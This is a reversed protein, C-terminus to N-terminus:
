PQRGDRHTKLIGLLVQVTKSTAGSQRAFIQAGRQGLADAAVRDKLLHGLAHALEKKNAVIEIGNAAQMDAVIERFNFFSSGMVVPVGFRAPELPNHGGKPVLSGGVFAVDALAYVAALDGITDLLLVQHGDLNEAANPLKGALLQSARHLPFRREVLRAVESFREPHRPALLLVAAPTDSRLTEWVELLTEEEGPLLSGAVLLSRRGLLPRISHVLASEQPETDYKLNGSLTIAEPRVGLALLRRSSESSQTLFHTVGRLVRGWLRRFRLARRFSRDSLRANAVVVPIGQRASEALLRPWLESEVLVLMRPQLARLWSRVAWRFDLPFWFVREAGFRERALAQGTRTTTSVVLIWPPVTADQALAAEFETVLRSAALVEGVSVAHVWVVRRGQATSRLRAPVRGLRERLGERYRRTTAMRTLWWPASVALGASLLVSYLLLMM